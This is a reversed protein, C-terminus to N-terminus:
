RLAAALASTTRSTVAYRQPTADPPLYRRYVSIHFCSQQFEEEVDVRGDQILPLLYGRLWAIQALSLGRKAIDIAQGTLHPSATDGEAPAANGNTRQLRLQFEVTRVASNVQLPTHFRNYYDRSLNALFQATWARCFRRNYPLRDDIRLSDDAPIPVLMGKSRMGDLDADDQVRGLGDQDALTNQRVLIEHSGLLPAPVVLRGRDNYLAPLIIPSAAADQISPLQPRDATPRIVSVVATQHSPMDPSFADSGPAPRLNLAHDRRNPRLIQPHRASASSLLNERTARRSRQARTLETLRRQRPNPRDATHRGHHRDARLTGARFIPPQPHQLHSARATHTAVPRGPAPTLRAHRTHAFLTAPLLSVTALVLTALPSYRM